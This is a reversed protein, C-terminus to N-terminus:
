GVIEEFAVFEYHIEIVGLFARRRFSQRSSRTIKGSIGCSSGRIQLASLKHVCVALEGWMPQAKCHIEEVSPENDLVALMILLLHSELTPQVVDIARCPGVIQDVRDPDAGSDAIAYLDDPGCIGGHIRFPVGLM